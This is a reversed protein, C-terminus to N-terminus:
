SATVTVDQEYTKVEKTSTTKQLFNPFGSGLANGTSDGREQVSVHAGLTGLVLLLMVVSNCNM